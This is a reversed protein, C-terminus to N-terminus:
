MRACPVLFLLWIKFPPWVTNPFFQQLDVMSWAVERPWFNTVRISVRSTNATALRRTERCWCRREIRVRSNGTITLAALLSNSTASPFICWEWRTADVYESETTRRTLVHCTTDDLWICPPQQHFFKILWVGCNSILSVLSSTIAHCGPYALILNMLSSLWESDCTFSGPQRKDVLRIWKTEEEERSKRM